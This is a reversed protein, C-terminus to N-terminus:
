LRMRSLLSAEPLTFHRRFHYFADLAPMIDEVHRATSIIIYIFSANSWCGFSHRFSLSRFSFYRSSFVMLLRTNWDYIDGFHRGDGFANQDGIAFVFVVAIAKRMFPLMAYIQRRFAHYMRM